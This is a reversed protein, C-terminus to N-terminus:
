ALGDMLSSQSAVAEVGESVQNARARRRDGGRLAGVMVAPVCSPGPIKSYRDFSKVIDGRCYSAGFPETVIVDNRSFGCNPGFDNVWIKKGSGYLLIHRDKDAVRLAEM